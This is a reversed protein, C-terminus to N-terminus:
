ILEQKLREVIDHAVESKDKLPYDTFGGPYAITIKNTDCRFGAGKDNLSNLVIFDFNKRKMKEEANKRENDTELAFGILRQHSQKMSGLAAAIDETPQLHFVQEGKERKIKHDSVESPTFDAVAACLIGADMVPFITKAKAAMEAASEVKVLNIRNSRVKRDVPRADRSINADPGQHQM